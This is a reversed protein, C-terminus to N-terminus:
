AKQLQERLSAIQAEGVPTRLPQRASAISKLLGEPTADEFYADDFADLSLAFKAALEPSTYIMHCPAFPRVEGNALCEEVWETSVVDVTAYKRSMDAPAASAQRIWNRVKASEGGRTALLVSTLPTPNAAVIGGAEMLSRELAARDVCDPAAHLVCFEFGAFLSSTPTVGDPDTVILNPSVRAFTRQPMVESSRQAQQERRADKKRRRVMVLEDMAEARKTFTGSADVIQRLQASNTAEQLGKDYRLRHCRPFRITHGFGFKVTETFSYGFVEMVVSDKPLVWQDPVDDKAPVWGSLWRPVSPLTLWKGDLRDNLERLDAENYGTGVKCVTVFDAADDTPCEGERDKWVGLLFHSLHRQGFKVGFYGGLVILDVTDAMGAIHDPKLKLWKLKREGPVYRSGAVKIVVGEFGSRMADDLSVLISKTNTAVTHPVAELMTSKPEFVDRVLQKRKVLPANVLSEGNLFVIDFVCYCFWQKVGDIEDSTVGSAAFTRNQGFDCFKNAVGDYLMFEGDLICNDTGPKLQARLVADYKPGYQATYNRANRTWYMIKDRTVHIMMREGDYKPEILLREDKLLVSLKASDVVSALMPKLPQMLFIGSKIDGAVTLEKPDTCKTCIYQLDNTNNYLELASPHFAALISGHQMGMKMEKTIIRILWKQELASTARLLRMLVAKKEDINVVSALQDLYLNVQAVSLRESSHYARKSLVVFVVDSFHTADASNKSPDKWHRFREADPSTHSLGLLDIYYRAIKSERLGYTARQTDLQPVILRMFPFFDGGALSRWLRELVKMRVPRESTRAIAEFRDCLDTFAMTQAVARSALHAAAPQQHPQQQDATTPLELPAPMAGFNDDQGEEKIM